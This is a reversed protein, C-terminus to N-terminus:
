GEEEEEESTELLWIWDLIMILPARRLSPRMKMEPRRSAALLIRGRVCVSCEM